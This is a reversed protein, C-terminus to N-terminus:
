VLQGNKRSLSCKELRSSQKTANRGARIYRCYNVKTGETATSVRVGQPSYNVYGFVCNSHKGACGSIGQWARAGTKMGEDGVRGGLKSCTIPGAVPVREAVAAADDDDDDDDAVM